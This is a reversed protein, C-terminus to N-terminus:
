SEIENLYQRAEKTVLGNNLQGSKNALSLGAVSSLTRLQTDIETELLNLLLQYSEAQNVDSLSGATLITERLHPFLGECRYYMHTKEVKNLPTTILERMCFGINIFWQDGFGKQFGILIDVDDTARSMVTGKRMFGLRLLTDIIGKKFDNGTM